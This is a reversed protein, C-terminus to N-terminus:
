SGIPLYCLSGITHDFVLRQIPFLVHYFHREFGKAWPPSDHNTRMARSKEESLQSAESPRQMLSSGNTWLSELAPLQSLLTWKFVIDFGMGNTLPCRIAALERQLHRM